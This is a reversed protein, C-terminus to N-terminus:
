IALKVRPGENPWLKHKLHEFLDHLGNQVDLNWSRQLSIFFKDIWQNKVRAITKKFNRSDVSVGDGL